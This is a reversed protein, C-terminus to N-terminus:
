ITPIAVTRALVISTPRVPLLIFTAVTCATGKRRVWQEVRDYVNFKMTGSEDYRLILRNYVPDINCTNVTSGPVLTYKTIASSATDLTTGDVFEFRGIRLGRANAEIGASDAETWLYTSTGVPEAGFSVGHGFGTLLMYGLRNGSLSLKTLTLDGNGGGYTLQLTFICGNANDFGFSQMVTRDKLAVESWLQGGTGLLYFHPAGLVAAHIKRTVFSQIGAMSDLGVNRLFARRNFPM